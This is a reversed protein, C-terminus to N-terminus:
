VIVEYILTWNSSSYLNYCHLKCQQLKCSDWIRTGMPGVISPRAVVWRLSFNCTIFNTFQEYFAVHLISLKMFTSLPHLQIKYSLAISSTISYLFLLNGFALFYINEINHISPSMRSHCPLQLNNFVIPDSSLNSMWFRSIVCPHSCHKSLSSWSEEM